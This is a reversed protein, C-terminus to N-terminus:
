SKTIRIREDTTATTLQDRAKSFNAMIESHEEYSSAAKLKENEAENLSAVM